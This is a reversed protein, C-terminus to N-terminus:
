IKKKFGNTTCFSKGNHTKRCEVCNGHNPCQTKPCQCKKNMNKDM